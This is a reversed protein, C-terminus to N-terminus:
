RTLAAKRSLICPQNLFGTFSLPTAGVFMEIWLLSVWVLPLNVAGARHSNLFVYQGSPANRHYKGASFCAFFRTCCWCYSASILTDYTKVAWRTPSVTLFSIGDNRQTTSM